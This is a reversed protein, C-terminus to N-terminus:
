KQNFGEAAAKRALHRVAIEVVDARGVGYFEKLADILDLAAKSMRFNAQPKTHYDRTDDNFLQATKRSRKPM